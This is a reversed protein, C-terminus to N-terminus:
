PAPSATAPADIFPLSEDAGTLAFLRRAAKTGKTIRFRKGNQNSRAYADILARLGSSDIFGVADIDLVITSADTAEAAVLADHLAPATAIDLEGDAIVHLAADRTLTTIKLPQQKM